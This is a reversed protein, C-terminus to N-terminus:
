VGCFKIRTRYGIFKKFPLKRRFWRIYCGGIKLSYLIDICAPTSYITVSYKHCDSHVGRFAVFHSVKDLDRIGQLDM